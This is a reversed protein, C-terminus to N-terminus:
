SKDTLKLLKDNSFYYKKKRELIYHNILLQTYQTHKTTVLYM